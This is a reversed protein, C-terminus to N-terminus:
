LHPKMDLGQHPGDHGRTVQQVCTTDQMPTAEQVSLLQQVCPLWQVSLLQQVHLCASAPCAATAPSHWHATTPTPGDGAPHSASATVACIREGHGAGRGM